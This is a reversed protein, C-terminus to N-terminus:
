LSISNKQLIMMSCHLDYSLLPKHRVKKQWDKEITKLRVVAAVRRMDVGWVASVTAVTQGNEVVNKYINERLDESLVRESRFYRNQPYPTLDSQREKPLRSKKRGMDDLEEQQGQEQGDEDEEDQEEQENQEGESDDKRTRLLNGSKDYAGLYNTSGELPQRFARGPGNLWAFM